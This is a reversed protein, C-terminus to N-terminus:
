RTAAAAARIPNLDARRTVAAAGAEKEVEEILRRAQARHREAESANRQADFLTALAHHSRAALVQLRLRESSSLARQLQTRAEDYRKLRILAEGLYISADASLYRLGERDADQSLKTLTAAAAAANETADVKAVNVRTLLILHRDRSEAAVKLAEAFLRRANALDGALFANDGQFNLTQAILPQNKLATARALAEDLPKRAEDFRGLLTL